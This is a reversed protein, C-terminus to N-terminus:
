LLFHLQYLIIKRADIDDVNGVQQFKGQSTPVGTALGFLKKRVGDRM